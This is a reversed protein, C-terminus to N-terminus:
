TTFRERSTDVHTRDSGLPCHLELQAPQYLCEDRPHIQGLQQKFDIGPGAEGALESVDADLIQRDANASREQGFRAVDTQLREHPIVDGRERPAAQTPYELVIQPSLGSGL